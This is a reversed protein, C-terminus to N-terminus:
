EKFYKTCKFLLFNVMPKKKYISVKYDWQLCRVTSTHGGMLPCVPELESDKVHFVHLRGSVSVFIVYCSFWLRSDLVTEVLLLFGVRGRVYEPYQKDDMMLFYCLSFPQCYNKKEMLPQWHYVLRSSVWGRPGAWCVATSWRYVAEISVGTVLTFFVFIQCVCRNTGGVFYLQKETPHHICNVFYDFNDETQM